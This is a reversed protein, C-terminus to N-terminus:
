SELQMKQIAKTKIIIGTVQKKKREWSKHRKRGYTHLILVNLIASIVKPVTELDAM